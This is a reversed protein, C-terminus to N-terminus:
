AGIKCDVSKFQEFLSVLVELDPSLSDLKERIEMIKGEIEIRRTDLQRNDSEISPVEYFNSFDVPGGLERNAVKDLLGSFVTKIFEIKKANKVDRDFLSMRIDPKFADCVFSLEQRMGEFNSSKYLDFLRRELYTAIGSKDKKDILNLAGSGGSLRMM